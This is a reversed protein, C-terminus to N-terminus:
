KLDRRRVLRSYGNWGYEPECHDSCFSEDLNCNDCRGCNPEEDDVTLTIFDKDNGM